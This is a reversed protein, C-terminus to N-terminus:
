KLGALYVLEQVVIRLDHAIKDIDQRNAIYRRSHASLDGVSKLKPLAQKTNRSLNWGSEALTLNILDKLSLFDGNLDQIKAATGYHEFSEIILTEVLRRIMVACADFWGREYSGNVQNTVKELYGRTGRVVAVPM